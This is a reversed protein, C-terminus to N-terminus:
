SGDSTGLVAPSLTDGRKGASVDSPLGTVRGVKSCVPCLVYGNGLPELDRDNGCFPCARGPM